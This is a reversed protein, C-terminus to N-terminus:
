IEKQTERKLQKRAARVRQRKSKHPRCCRCALGGPGVGHHKVAKFTDM